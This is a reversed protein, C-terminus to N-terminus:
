QQHKTKHVNAIHLYNQLAALKEWFRPTLNPPALWLKASYLANASHFKVDQNCGIFRFTQCDFSIDTPTAPSYYVRGIILTPGSSIIPCCKYWICHNAVQRDVWRMISTLCRTLTNQLLSKETLPHSTKTQVREFEKSWLWPPVLHPRPSLTKLPANQLAHYRGPLISKKM